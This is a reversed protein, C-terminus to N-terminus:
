RTDPPDTEVPTGDGGAADIATSAEREALRQTRTKTNLPTNPLFAIAILGLIALPASALFVSATGSAYASEVAVRLAGEFQSPPPLTSLDIGGPAVGSAILDESQAQFAAASRGGMLSGLVTVGITGGLTRFFAVGASTVGMDAIEATNEAILVLNQMVMGIGVGVGALLVCIVPLPTTTTITALGVLGGALFGAGLLMRGKWRGSRSILAGVVTSAVVVALLQPLVLLGAEAASAGRM